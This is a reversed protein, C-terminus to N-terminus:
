KVEAATLPLSFTFITGKGEESYCRITGGQAEVLMKVISLGLGWGVQERVMENEARFFQKFLKKRDEKSIGIGNDIVDIEVFNQVLRARVGIRGGRPTYKHANNVLNTLIQVTRVRDALVLPLSASIMKTLTQGKGQVSEQQNEIVEDILGVVNCHTLKLKLQGMEIRNLDALDNVLLRMRKANNLVRELLNEQDPNLEGMAGTLVLDTYGMIATMPSRLEHTVVAIFDTQKQKSQRVAEYLRANEIAVAARDALREVFAIDEKPFAQRDPSELVILGTVLGQKKIAVALQTKPGEATETRSTSSEGTMLVQALIPHSPSVPSDSRWGKQTLINLKPQKSANNELLGLAGSKAQTLQVAWGLALGLIRELDLSQNLQRDIKQFIGLEEVRRRLAQDTQTFLRANDIALAAQNAFIALLELDQQSFVSSMFRNDVYATGIIQGRARLPCCMISRLQYGVVSQNEAFREDELANSTLIPEGRAVSREIISNSIEASFDVSLNKDSQRAVAVSLEGTRDDFLMILGREAHTLAIIADIVDNLLKRLELTEVLRSSLQHLAALRAQQINPSFEKRLPVM